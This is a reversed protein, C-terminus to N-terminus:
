EVLMRVIAFNEIEWQEYYGGKSAYVFIDVIQCHQLIEYKVHSILKYSQQQGLSDPFRNQILKNRDLSVLPTEVRGVPFSGVYDPIKELRVVLYGYTKSM